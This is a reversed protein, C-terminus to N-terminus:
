CTNQSDKSTKEQVQVKIMKDPLWEKSGRVENSNATLSSKSKATMFQEAMVNTVSTDKQKLCNNRLLTKYKEM